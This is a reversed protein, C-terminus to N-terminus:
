TQLTKSWTSWLGTTPLCIKLISNLLMSLCEAIKSSRGHLTTAASLETCVATFASTQVWTLTEGPTHNELVTQTQYKIDKWSCEKPFGRTKSELSASTFPITTSTICSKASELETTRPLTKWLQNKFTHVSISSKATMSSGSLPLLLSLM